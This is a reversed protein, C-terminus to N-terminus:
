LTLTNKINDCLIKNINEVSDDGDIECLSISPNHSHRVREIIPYTKEDFIEMRNRIVDENDDKRKFLNKSNCSTCCQSKEIDSEQLIIGCDLCSLRSTLRKILKDREVRFYVLMIKQDAFKKVLFDMQELTRPYGDLIINGAALNNIVDLMIENATADNILKGQDIISKIKRGLDTDKTTYDRLIDGLCIHELSFKKLLIKAQTGKGSGPM